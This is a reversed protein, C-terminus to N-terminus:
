QYLVGWKGENCQHELYLFTFGERGRGVTRRVAKSFISRGDYTGLSGDIQPVHITVMGEGMGLCLSRDTM